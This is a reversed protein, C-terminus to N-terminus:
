SDKHKRSHAKASFEKLGENRLRCAPCNQCGEGPVGRYCSVTEKLLFELVGLEEALQMTEMKTLHVLPTHICFASNDLDLRLIQEKLDMYERSCDRYGSNTAELGLVGIFVSSAGVHDAYIAALRVFLGNRGVVMTNAPKGVEHEIEITEDLLASSTIERLMPLDITKHKVGWQSCIFSSRELELSHRQGFSYTFAYVNDLGYDRIALALCISSDMGGSHCVVTKM